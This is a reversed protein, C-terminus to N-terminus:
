KLQTVEDPNQIKNKAINSFPSLDTQIDQFEKEIKDLNVLIKGRATWIVADLIIQDRDSLGEVSEKSFGFGQPFPDTFANNNFRKPLINLNLNQVLTNDLNGDKDFIGLEQAESLSIEKTKESGDGIPKKLTARALLADDIQKPDTIIDYFIRLFELEIASQNPSANLAEDVNRIFEDNFHELAENFTIAKKSDEVRQM